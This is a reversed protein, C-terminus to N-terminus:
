EDPTSPSLTVMALSFVLIETVDSIGMDLLYAHTVTRAVASAHSVHVRATSAPVELVQCLLKELLVVHPVPQPHNCGVLVALVNNSYATDRQKCCALVCCTAHLLACCHVCVNTCRGHAGCLTYSSRYKLMASLSASSSSYIPHLVISECFCYCLTQDCHLGHQLRTLKCSATCRNTEEAYASRRTVCPSAYVSRTHHQILWCAPPNLRARACFMEIAPTRLHTHCQVDRGRSPVPTVGIYRTSDVHNATAATHWIGTGSQCWRLM